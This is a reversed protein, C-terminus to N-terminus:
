GYYDKEIQKARSMGSSQESGEEGTSATSPHQGPAYPKLWNEKSIPAGATRPPHKVSGRNMEARLQKEQEREQKEEAVMQQWEQKRKLRELREKEYAKKYDHTKPEPKPAASRSREVRVMTWKGLKENYVLRRESDGLPPTGQEPNSM